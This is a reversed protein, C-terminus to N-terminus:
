QKIMVIVKGKARGTEVYDLAKQTDKFPFVKDVIPIIKDQEILDKIYSLQQGSPRMFHYLYEVNFKKELSTTKRSVLSFLLTKFLGLNEKTAFKGDPLGAISVIKGNPKLIQFSKELSDGGLTDYVADYNKLKDQFNEEKYNIIVDAGLSKVLDYGKESVTTAVIAGMEKALQIAFTGVGGSGAPIFIKQGKKLGMLEFAQFSTLGVLPISAAEEFSLNTPKLSIDEEHIAIYEAFTGIRTKRPRGFVEDGNTYKTVMSGVEIVTGSFDNGLTLPFEYQTLMKTKGDRIKFDVPNISAAHIGVLVDYEGVKPILKDMERLTRNKGYQDIVMAKM